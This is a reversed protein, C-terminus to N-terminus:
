GPSLFNKTRLRPKEQHTGADAGNDVSHLSSNRSMSTNPRDNNEPSLYLIFECKDSPRQRVRARKTVPCATVQVDQLPAPARGAM